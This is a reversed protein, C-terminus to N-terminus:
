FSQSSKQHQQFFRKSGEINDTKRWSRNWNWWKWKNSSVISDIIFNKVPYKSSTFLYDKFAKLCLELQFLLELCMITLRKRTVKLQSVPSLQSQLTQFNSQPVHKMTRSKIKHIWWDRWDRFFENTYNVENPKGAWTMMWIFGDQRIFKSFITIPSLSVIIFPLICTLPKIIRLIWVWKAKKLFLYYIEIWFVYSFESMIVKLPRNQLSKSLVM